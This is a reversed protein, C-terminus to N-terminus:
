RAVVQKSQFDVPVSTHQHVALWRDQRRQLLVTQRNEISRQPQGHEDLAAFELTASGGAVDAGIWTQVDKAIVRVRTDRIGDFWAAIMGAWADRGAYEWRDWSDFVQVDEAYLGVFRPLDRELVAAAYERLFTQAPDDTM